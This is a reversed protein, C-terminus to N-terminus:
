GSGCFSTCKGSTCSGKCENQQNTCASGATKQAQCTGTAAGSPRDCYLGSTCDSKTTCPGGQGSPPTAGCKGEFCHGSACEDKTDALCSKGDAVQAQCKGFDCYAGPACGPHSGFNFNSTLELTGGESQGKGCPEGIAPPNKCAGDSNATWGVCTLGDQCEQDGACAGGVAVTGKYVGKCANVDISSANVPQGCLSPLVQAITANCSALQDQNITLRGKSVGADLTKSCSAQGASLLGALLGYGATAKDDTTCCKGLYQVFAGLTADCYNTASGVVTGSSGGDSENSAGPADSSTGGGCAVAVVAVGALFAIAKRHNM